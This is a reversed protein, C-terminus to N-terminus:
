LIVDEVSQEYEKIWKEFLEITKEKGGFIKQYKEAFKEIDNVGQQSIWQILDNRIENIYEIKWPNVIQRVDEESGYM